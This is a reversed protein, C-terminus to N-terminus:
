KVKNFYYDADSIASNCILLAASVAGGAGAAAIATGLGGTLFATFVVTATGLGVASIVAFEGNNLREVAARFEKLNDKNTPSETVYKTRDTSRIDWNTKNSHFYIDYERNMFTNQYSHDVFPQIENIPQIENLNLTDTSLLNEGSIDYKEITLINTTKDNKSITIGDVTVEKVIVENENNTLISVSNSLHNELHQEVVPKSNVVTPSLNSAFASTSSLLLFSSLVVTFLSKKKM